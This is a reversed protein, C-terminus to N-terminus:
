AAGGEPLLGLAKRMLPVLRERTMSPTAVFRPMTAGSRWRAVADCQALAYARLADDTQQEERLERTTTYDGDRLPM